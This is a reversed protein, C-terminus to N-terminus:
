EVPPLQFRLVRGRVPSSCGYPFWGPGAARHGVALVAVAGAGSGVTSREARRLPLGQSSLGHRDLARARSRARRQQPSLAGAAGAAVVRVPGRHSMVPRGDGGRRYGRAGWPLAQGFTELEDERLLSSRECMTRAYSAATCM